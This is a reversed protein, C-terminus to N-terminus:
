ATPRGSTRRRLKTHYSVAFRHSEDRVQQLLKLAPSRRPLMISKQRGPLFVEEQRKALSIIPVDIGEAALAKRASNLQGKGGDILILDPYGWRDADSDARSARYRRRVVEQMMAFDDIGEVTKIKFRRYYNKNPQGHSFRVCSGVANTGHINSIDFGDIEVPPRDLHLLAQLQNVPSGDAQSVINKRVLTLLDKKDGRQPVTISVKKGREQQLYDELLQQDPLTVPVIIEQPVTHTLYYQQVFDSLAQTEGESWQKFYYTNRATVIGRMVHFVQITLEDNIIAYNIVDQDYRKPLAIVQSQQVTELASLQDRYLKALEFEQRSAAQEMRQKFIDALKDQRGNLFLKALRVNELYEGQDVDQLQKTRIDSLLRYLERSGRSTIKNTRLGFLRATTLLLAKRGQGSVYPGFYTGDTTIQRTLLLRPYEEDTIKIYAYPQNEKLDINYPPKHQKILRAELILAEVENRTVIFEIDAVHSVLQQTKYDDHKKQWYSKVRKRLNKAKGIYLIQGASNKMIYCGASTPISLNAIAFAM